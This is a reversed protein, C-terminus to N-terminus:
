VRGLLITWPFSGTVREVSVFQGVFKAFQAQSWLNIHEPHNGFRRLHHGRAFNSLRFWPEHPVSFLVYRKAVRKMEQIAQAPRELHELVESAIVVDWSHDLQNIHYIDGAELSLEPFIERGATLAQPLNDQGRLEITPWKKQIASLLFGEGCGMELISQPKVSDLVSLFTRQFKGILRRQVPNPNVFKQHNTTIM